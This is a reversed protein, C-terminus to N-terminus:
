RPRDAEGTEDQAFRIEASLVSQLTDLGTAELTYPGRAFSGPQVVVIVDGYSNPSLAASSIAVGDTGTLTLRYASEETGVAIQLIASQNAAPIAIVPKGARRSAEINVMSAGTLVAAERHELAPRTVMGIAVGLVLSAATAYPWLWQRGLAMASPARKAASTGYRVSDLREGVGHSATANPAGPGLHDALASLAEIEDLTEQDDLFFIEFRTREDDGLEGRLYRAVLDNDVIYQRNM